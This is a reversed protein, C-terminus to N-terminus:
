VSITESIIKLATKLREDRTGSLILYPWNLAELEEKYKQFFYERKDPHERLPDPEWPLDIDTLFVINYKAESLKKLVWEPTSGYANDMWVKIVLLNTDIVVHEAQGKLATLELEWQMQAITEVDAQTYSPGKIELYERAYEKVLTGGLQTNLDESLTSKGTSEPGVILTSFPVEAM